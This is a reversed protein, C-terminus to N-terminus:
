STILAPTDPSVEAPPSLRSSQCRSPSTLTSTMSSPPLSPRRPRGGAAIFRFRASIMVRALRRPIRTRSVPISAGGFKPAGPDSAEDHTTEWLVYPESMFKRYNFTRDLKGLKWLQYAIDKGTYTVTGNSRVIVKSDEEGGSSAFASSPMVWCGANKGNKELHIAGRQKLLQFAKAWFKLHLIESERPLVDYMIGLRWMTALHAEVIADAVVHGLEALAGEGAEIAHLTETRWALAEPEDVPVTFGTEGDQVLFALGGVQSAVVPTGCAMADLMSSGLGETLSSMVFVTFGKQLALVDPRFGPLFVHRDLGLDKVQQELAARLEGEGLIVFRADPVARVVKAAAAVLDKQGKHPVLAAM